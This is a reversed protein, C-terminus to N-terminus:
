PAVNPDFFSSEKAVVRSTNQPDLVVVTVQKVTGGSGSPQTLTVYSFVPYPQGDPGTVKQVAQNPDVGSSSVIGSPLSGSCYVTVPTHTADTNETMWQPTSSPTTYNFYTSYTTAGLTGTFSATDASYQAYWSSTSKPIGDPLGTTVNDTGTGTAKLYISCNRLDRYVEMVKDAVATASSTKSANSLALAGSQFAAMLALIGINLMVMAFLLEILGFGEEDAARAPV